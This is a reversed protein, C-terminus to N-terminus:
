FPAESNLTLKEGSIPHAFVLRQAHLHLRDAFRGYLEDGVIPANLGDPHAAHVRLQHTRGTLPYFRIRSRGAEVAVVEYITMAHRGHQRCVLQRPRDTLDTRLPLEIRGRKSEIKGDLLAVYIKRVQRDAFQRQLARQAEPTKGVLMVGSTAMDLRHVILPEINSNWRDRLRTLVSDEIELGPVSLLGAPKEVAVFQEDEFLITMAGARDSRTQLPSAEVKLGGLMHGLIPRCRSRCSPYFRRHRRLEGPPPAGWWFEALALPKLENQYASQLLKPAACEGAASPPTKRGFIDLLDRTEGKANLFRYARFLRQQLDNSRAKRQQTMAEHRDRLAYWRNEVPAIAKALEQRLRKFNLKERIREANLRANLADLAAESLVAEERRRLARRHRRHANKRDRAEALRKEVERQQQEFRQKAARFERSAELQKQAAILETLEAEGRRFFGDEALMDFVPPVFGPHHNCDNLKGSFAWLYGLRGAATQVVLVGFMKGFGPEGNLGFTWDTDNKLYHQLKEAALRSLAHPRYHFPFTFREPLAIGTIETPDFFHLPAVNSM